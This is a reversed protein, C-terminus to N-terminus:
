CVLFRVLLAVGGVGAFLCLLVLCYWVMLYILVWLDVCWLLFCWGFVVGLLLLLWVVALVLGVVDLLLLWCM